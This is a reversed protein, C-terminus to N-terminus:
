SKCTLVTLWTLCSFPDEFFDLYNLGSLKSILLYLYM